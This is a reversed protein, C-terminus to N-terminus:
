YADDNVLASCEMEADTNVAPPLAKQVVRVRMDRYANANVSDQDLTPVHQQYTACQQM